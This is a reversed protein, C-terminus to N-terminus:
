RRKIRRDVRGTRITLVSLVGLAATVVVITAQGVPVGSTPGHVTVTRSASGVNGAVDPANYTLTYTGAISTNVSGSTAIFATRDGSVVDVATAGLDTFPDNVNLDTHADGILTVVPPTTDGAQQM